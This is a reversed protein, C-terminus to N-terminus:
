THTFHTLLLTMIMYSNNGKIFHSEVKISYRNVKTLITIEPYKNILKMHKISLYFHIGSGLILTANIIYGGSVSNCYSSIDINFDFHIMHSSDHSFPGLPWFKVNPTIVELPKVLMKEISFYSIKTKLMHIVNEILIKTNYTRYVM